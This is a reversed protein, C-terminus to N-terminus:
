VKEAWYKNAEEPWIVFPKNGHDADAFRSSFFAKYGEVRIKVDAHFRMMSGVEGTPEDGKAHGNFIFLRNPNDRLLAQAAKLTLTPMYNISDIIIVHPARSNGEIKARLEALDFDIWLQVKKGCDMMGARAWQNQFSKCDGQELSVVAVRENWEMALYRALQLLFSTKGQGSAGWMFWAGRLEPKGFSELWPGTFAATNYKKALLQSNSLVRGM